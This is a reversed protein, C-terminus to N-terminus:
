QIHSHQLIPCFNFTTSCSVKLSFPQKPNIHCNFNKLPRAGKIYILYYSFKSVTHDQSTPRTLNALKLSDPLFQIYYLLKTQIVICIKAVYQLQITNTSIALEHRTEFPTSYFQSTIYQCGQCWKLCNLHPCLFIHYHYSSKNAM